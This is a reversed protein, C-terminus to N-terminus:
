DKSISLVLELKKERHWGKIQTERKLAQSRTPYQETYLVKVVQKSRTEDKPKVIKWDTGGTRWNKRDDQDSEFMEKLEQSITNPEQEM